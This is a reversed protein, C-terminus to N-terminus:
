NMFKRNIIEWSLEDEAWKRGAMGMVSLQWPHKLINRLVATLQEYNGPPIGIGQGNQLRERLYDACIFPKGCASADMMSISQHAPWVLLDCANYLQPLVERPQSPLLTVPIHSSNIKDKIFGAYNEEMNGAILLHVPPIDKENLADVLLEIRKKHEIKGAYGVVIAEAGIGNKERFAKGATPNPRYFDVDTGLPIMSIRDAPIKFLKELIERTGDAIGVIKSYGSLIKGSFISGYIGLFFRKIRSHRLDSLLIHEDVIKRCTLGPHSILQLTAPQSIGHCIVLDPKLSMVKNILGRMLVRGSIEFVVPLYHIHYQGNFFDGTEKKRPGLDKEATSHYDTYPFNLNSGVIHVKHGLRAQEEALYNEQYKWVPNYYAVVHVITM